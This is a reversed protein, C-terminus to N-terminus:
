KGLDLSITKRPEFERATQLQVQGRHTPLNQFRELRRQRTTTDTYRLKMNATSHM